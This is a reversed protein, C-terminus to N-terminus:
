ASFIQKRTSACNELHGKCSRYIAPKSPKHCLKGCQNEYAMERGGGNRLVQGCCGRCFRHNLAASPIQVSAKSVQVTM